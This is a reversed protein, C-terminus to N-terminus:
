SRRRRYAISSIVTSLEFLPMNRIFQPLYFSSGRTDDNSTWRRLLHELRPRLAATMRSNQAIPIKSFLILDDRLHKSFQTIFTTTLVPLIAFFPLSADSVLRASKQCVVGNSYITQLVPVNRFWNSDSSKDRTHPRANRFTPPFRSSM